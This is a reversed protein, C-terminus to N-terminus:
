LDCPHNPVEMHGSLVNMAKPGASIYTVAQGNNTIYLDEVLVNDLVLKKFLRDANHRSYAAGMGFMGTQIKASKASSIIRKIRHVDTYSYFLICHSIEGDRGARGSEQYYGEMSKPLSAHIVYRVDPKDIGMGFAITACIVKEPTVYLLKIIPDKRSLQVYIRGAESDSKDGSLSTAPIPNKDWSSKNPGGEKVAASVASLNQGSKSSPEDFYDPIDSDNLDDIDFDDVYFDDTELDAATASTSTKSKNQAVDESNKPSFFLDSEDAGSGTKKSLNFPPNTSSHASPSDCISENEVYIARSDMRQWPKVSASDFCDSDYDVSIVSSRQPQLPKKTNVRLSSSPSMLSSAGCSSFTHKFSTDSILTSDPQQMM